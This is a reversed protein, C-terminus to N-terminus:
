SIVEEICTRLQNMVLAAAEHQRSLRLNNENTTTLKQQTSTVDIDAGEATRRAIGICVIGDLNVPANPGLHGTISAAITAQPTNQLVGIAMEEAVVKSVVGQQQISDRSVSLWNTKTEIQYVVASGCLYESVGPLRALTAAILGATCSEAFVIQQNMQKLVSYLKEAEIILTQDNM